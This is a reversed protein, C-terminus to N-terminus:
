RKLTATMSWWRLVPRPLLIISLTASLAHGAGHIVQLFFLTGILIPLHSLSLTVRPIQTWILLHTPVIRMLYDLHAQSNYVGHVRRSNTCGPFCLTPYSPLPGFQQMRVLWPPPALPPISQAEILESTEFEKGGYYMKGIETLPPQMQFKFFTNHLKQYDIDIKCDKAACLWPDDSKLSM